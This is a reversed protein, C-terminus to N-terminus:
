DHTNMELDYPCDCALPLGTRRGKTHHSDVMCLDTDTVAEVGILKRESHVGFKTM